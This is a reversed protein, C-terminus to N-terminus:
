LGTRLLFDVQKNLMKITLREKKRHLKYISLGWLGLLFNFIITHKESKLTKWDM